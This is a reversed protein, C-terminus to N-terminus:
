NKLRRYIGAGALGFGFLLLTAPEPTETPTISQDTFTDRYSAGRLGARGYGRSGNSFFKARSSFVQPLSSFNYPRTQMYPYFSMDPNSLAESQFYLNAQHQTNYASSYNTVGPMTSNGLVFAEVPAVMWAALFVILFIFLKVFKMKREQSM